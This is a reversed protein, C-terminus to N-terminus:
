DSWSPNIFTNYYRSMPIGPVGRAWKFGGSPVGVSGVSVWKRALIVSMGPLGKARREVDRACGEM